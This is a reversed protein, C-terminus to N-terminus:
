VAAIPLRWGSGFAQPSMKLLPAAQRRKFEARKLMQEVWDVLIPDNGAAVLSDRSNRDQILDRLISDLMVYDPLTDTDKQNPRLEASPPKNRINEGVLGNKEYLGLERRCDISVNSDLWNCLAFVTTKYIDGIVALGGNMDGYLTCYGVALESKNGTTLLLHGQQNAVAMLLTGRIRSQLNEATVGEPERGLTNAFTVDFSKMLAEIPIIHTKLELRKALSDADNISIESSWQSPMMLAFVNKPGLAASAIVAVLASDIGGSLGLLVKKFGCKVTYDRVGLVLARFLLELPEQKPEPSLPKGFVDCLRICEKFPPLEICFNGDPSLIFSSGDFVLEDNGGVQNLYAVPCNLRRAAKLALKRRLYIKSPEFPSAALNILLDLKSNTLSEIPDPGVLRERQLNDEVWLDECITLGVRQGQPLTLLYPGKGPRFYRREDFVDYSPLLQKCAVPEWGKRTLLVVANYLAPLRTDDAELAVGVLINLDNELQDVLWELVKTQNSIRIKDLLLDRPPYGWLSLEPTILLDAKKKWAINAATLIKEANGQLDGVLPNLQALALRM